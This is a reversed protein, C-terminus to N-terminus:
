HHFLRIGSFAMAMGYEDAAAIVEDDRLSNGPEVIYKVGSEHARDISDRFPFFADSSLSVGDLKALWERKQEKALRTPVVAFASEWVKQQTPNLEDMLSNEVANDRNPRAIGKKFRYALVDPHQRLWWIDAKSAALRTCHVRSQQGAGMGIVQGDMAFCVSNSQAYKLAITAVILDRKAEAPLDKKKTVVKELISETIALDNRKQELTLGFLDKGEMERPEYAPDIELCLYKGGRKKKLIELADDEYGPAIVGDSIETRIIKATPADLADSVAVFDGFSSMRDAGRARAYAEALPSLAMGEVFYAKQLADTLPVGVAAGAPSVHKFSAAAPLGVAQKLERVLQWANLADMMNIFGPAGNRVSIPMKGSKALLRAVDQHPNCGYRLKIEEQSM